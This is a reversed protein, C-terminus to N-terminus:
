TLYAGKRARAAAGINGPHQTGVLVFRIRSATPDPPLVAPDAPINM